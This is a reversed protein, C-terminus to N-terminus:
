IYYGDSAVVRQWRDRLASIGDSFFKPNLGRLYDEVTGIVEDNSDFSRGRLFKKMHFFMHYDSPAIDPSYSPHNLEVLGTQRIAAQVINSKHVPANDHLLLVENNIKGRRKESIVDHLREILSAYYPGNITQGGVLYDTLLVGDRDWFMVLMIKSASQHRRPQSPRQEEPRKWVKSEQKSLPDYYHVWSEDGTVIRDFFKFPNPESAQLLELCCEVRNLRQIPTLFKPVWRVCVKRMGLHNSLIEHVVTKSIGLEDAVRRVSIQRDRLVIREVAEINEDTTATPPRGTRPADEFDRTPDKFEAVWKAVTRYAPASDQYVDELEKTIETANLGKRSFFKIVARHEINSMNSLYIFV